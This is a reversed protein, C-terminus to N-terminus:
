NRAFRFVSLLAGTCHAADLGALSRSAKRHRARLGGSNPRREAGRLRAAPRRQEQGREHQRAHSPLPHRHARAAEIEADILGAHGRPFVYHHDTTTTCGSLLLEAMGVLAAAYVSEEDLRAWIPYLTRLWDFLEADAAPRM